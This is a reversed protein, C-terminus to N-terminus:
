ITFETTSKDKRPPPQRRSEERGRQGNLEGQERHEEFTMVEVEAPVPFRQLHLLVHEKVAPTEVVLRVVVAGGPGSEASVLVRGYEPPHIELM